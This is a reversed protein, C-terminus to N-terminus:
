IHLADDYAALLRWLNKGYQSMELGKSNPSFDLGPGLFDLKQYWSIIRNYKSYKIYRLQGGPSRVLEELFVDRWRLPLENQKFYKATTPLSECGSQLGLNFLRQPDWLCLGLYDPFRFGGEDFFDGVGPERATLEWRSWYWRRYRHNMRFVSEVAQGRAEAVPGKLPKPEEFKWHLTEKLVFSFRSSAKKIYVKRAQTSLM